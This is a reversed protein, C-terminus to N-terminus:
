CPTGCKATATGDCDFKPGCEWTGLRCYCCAINGNANECADSTFMLAFACALGCNEGGKVSKLENKKLYERNLFIGLGNIAYKKM